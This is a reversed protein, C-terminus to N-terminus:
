YNGQLLPTRSITVTDSEDYSFAEELCNVDGSIILPIGSIEDFKIDIAISKRASIMVSNEFRGVLLTHYDPYAYIIDNGTLYGNPDVMGM